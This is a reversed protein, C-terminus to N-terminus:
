QSEDTVVEIDKIDDGALFWCDDRTVSSNGSHGGRWDHFAITVRPGPEMVAIVTGVKGSLHPYRSSPSVRVVIFPLIDEANM